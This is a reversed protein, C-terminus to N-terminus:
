NQESINNNPMSLILMYADRFGDNILIKYLNCLIFVTLSVVLALVGAMIWFHWATSISAIGGAIVAIAALWKHIISYQSINRTDKLSSIYLFGAVCPLSVTLAIWATGTSFNIKGASGIIQFIILDLAGIGSVYLKDSMYNESPIDSARIMDIHTLLEPIKEEPMKSQKLLDTLTQVDKKTREQRLVKWLPIAIAFIRQFALMKILLTVQHPQETEKQQMNCYLV